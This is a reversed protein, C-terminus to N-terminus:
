GRFPGPRDAIGFLLRLATPSSPLVASTVPSM